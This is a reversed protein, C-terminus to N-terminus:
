KFPWIKYLIVIVMTSAVVPLVPNLAAWPGVYTQSATQLLSFGEGVGDAYPTEVPPQTENM